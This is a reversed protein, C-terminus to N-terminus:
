LMSYTMKQHCKETLSERMGQHHNKVLPSNSYGCVPPNVGFHLQILAWCTATYKSANM